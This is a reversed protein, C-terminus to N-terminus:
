WLKSRIWLKWVDVAPSEGSGSVNAGNDTQIILASGSSSSHDSGRSSQYRVIFSNTRRQRYDDIPNNLDESRSNEYDQGVNTANVNPREISCVQPINEKPFTKKNTNLKEEEIYCLNKNDYRRLYGLNNKTFVTPDNNADLTQDSTRVRRNAEFRRFLSSKTCCTRVLRQIASLIFWVNIVSFFIISLFFTSLVTYHMVFPTQLFMSMVLFVIPIIGRFVVALICSVVTLNKYFESKTYGLEKAIKSVEITTTSLEMTIGVLALLFNQGYGLFIGYCGCAVVHHITDFRYKSTELHHLIYIDQVLM